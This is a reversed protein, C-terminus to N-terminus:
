LMDIGPLVLALRIGIRPLIDDPVHYLMVHMMTALKAIRKAHVMKGRRIQLRTGTTYIQSHFSRFDTWHFPHCVTESVCTVLTKVVSMVLMITYIGGSSNGFKCSVVFQKTTQSADQIHQGLSEQFCRTCQRDVPVVFAYPLEQKLYYRVQTLPVGRDSSFRVMNSEYTVRCVGVGNGCENRTSSGLEWERSM